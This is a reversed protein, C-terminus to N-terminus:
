GDPDGRARRARRSASAEIRFTGDTNRLLRKRGEHVAVHHRRCLLVLNAMDTAGGHEWEAAIRVVEAGLREFEECVALMRDSL